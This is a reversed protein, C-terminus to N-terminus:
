SFDDITPKLVLEPVHARPPLAALFLVAAAVDEPKLIGERRQPKGEAGGPRVARVDLFPTDVEGPYLVTSRINRGREERGLTLGLAAEGFKSASYAAGAVTSARLGSLSSIQIVLGDGRERMAPVVFHILNFAATLNAAIVRDWDAPDIARLSRNRVNLGAANVLMQISGLSSLVASVMDGVAARDTIDCPFVQAREGSVDLSARTAELKDGDRGVLAVRAGAGVLAAAVARGIGGSAGVILATRDQIGM